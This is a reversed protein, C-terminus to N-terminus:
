TFINKIWYNTSNLKDSPYRPPENNFFAQARRFEHGEVNLMAKQVFFEIKERKRSFPRRNRFFLIWACTKPGRIPVKIKIDIGKKKDLVGMIAPERIFNSFENKKFYDLLYANM